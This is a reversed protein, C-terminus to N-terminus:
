DPRVLLEVGEKKYKKLEEITDNDLEFYDIAKNKLYLGGIKDQQNIFLFPGNVDYHLEDKDMQDITQNFSIIMGLRIVCFVILVALIVLWVIFVKNRKEKEEKM